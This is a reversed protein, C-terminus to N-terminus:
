PSRAGIAGAAPRATWCAAAPRARPDAARFGATAPGGDGPMDQAAQGGALAVARRRMLAADDVEGCRALVTAARLLLAGGLRADRTRTALAAAEFAHDLARERAARRDASGGRSGDAACRGALAAQCAVEAVTCLLDARLADPSGMAASWRLARALLREASVTDDVAALCRAADALASVMAAPQPQREAQDLASM